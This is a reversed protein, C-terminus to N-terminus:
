LGEFWWVDWGWEGVSMTLVPMLFLYLEVAIITINNIGKKEDRWNQTITNFSAVNLCAIVSLLLLSHSLSLSLFTAPPEHLILLPTGHRLGVM